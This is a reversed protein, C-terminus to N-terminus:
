YGGRLASDGYREIGLEGDREVVEWGDDEYTGADKFGPDPWMNRSAVTLKNVDITRAAIGDTWIRNIVAEDITADGAVLQGAEIELFQGVAGAVSEANVKDASVAGDEIMVSAAQKGVFPNRIRVETSDSGGRILQFNFGGSLVDDPARWHRTIKNWQGAVIPTQWHDSDGGEEIADGVFSTTGDRRRYYISARAATDAAVTDVWVEYSIVYMAGPDLLNSDYVSGVNTYANFQT